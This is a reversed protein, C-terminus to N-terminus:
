HENSSNQYVLSLILTAKTVMIKTYIYISLYLHVTQLILIVTIASSSNECGSRHEECLSVLTPTVSPCLSIHSTPLLLCPLDFMDNYEWLIVRSHFIVICFPCIMGMYASCIGIASQTFHPPLTLSGLLPCYGRTLRESPWGPLICM